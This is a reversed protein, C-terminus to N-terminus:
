VMHAPLLFNAIGEKVMYEHRCNGCVLKGEAITTEMLLSHLERAVQTAEGGEELTDPEPMEVPLTDLGIQFGPNKDAHTTEAAPTITLNIQVESCLSRLASWELRPMINKLFLPNYDVEVIELEADRPHLPFSAASTKCSKRACTLFNLTLIKM